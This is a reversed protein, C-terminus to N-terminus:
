SLIPKRVFQFSTCVPTLHGTEDPGITGEITVIADDHILGVARDCLYVRYQGVAQKATGDSVLVPTSLSVQAISDIRWLQFENKSQSKVQSRFFTGFDSQRITSLLFTLLRRREKEYRLQWAKRPGDYVSNSLEDNLDRGQDVFDAYASFPKSFFQDMLRYQQRIESAEALRAGKDQDQYFYDVYEQAKAEGEGPLAYVTQCLVEYDAQPDRQSCSMAIMVFLM